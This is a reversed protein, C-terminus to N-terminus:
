RKRRVFFTEKCHKCRYNSGDEVKDVRKSRGHCKPCTQFKPMNVEEQKTTVVRGIRHFLKKSLWREQKLHESKEQGHKSSSRSRNTTDGEMMEQDKPM